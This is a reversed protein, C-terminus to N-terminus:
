RGDLKKMAEGQNTELSASWAHGDASRHPSHELNPRHKRALAWLKTAVGSRRRSPDVWISDVICRGAVDHWSLSGVLDLGSRLQVGTQDYIVREPAVTDRGWTSNLEM